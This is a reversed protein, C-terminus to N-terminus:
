HFDGKNQIFSKNRMINFTEESKGLYNGKEGVATATKLVFCDNVTNNYLLVKLLNFSQKIELLM